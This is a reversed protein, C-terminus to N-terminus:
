RAYSAYVCFDYLAQATEARTLPEISSLGSDYSFGLLRAYRQLILNMHEGTVYDETGFLGNGYGQVIGNEQAWGVYGSYWTGLEVDIFYSNDVQEAGAMRGLVTITMARTLNQEPSFTTDSTGLMIGNKYLFEVAEYCSDDESVDTFVSTRSSGSYYSEAYELAAGADLMGGCKVKGNLTDLPTATEMLIDKVDSVTLDSNSSYLMAAVASLIPASMSTGTMFSYSDDPTLSLIYSGPVAIDVNNEGYNSSYHLSGDSQLNAVSIINDLDFSAPYCVTRDISVGDNGSSAIFLMESDAVAQYLARDYRTTGMSMNCITAGNAEAYQIAEIVSETSGSGDRGGLAKLVMVKVSGDSVIGAIGTDNDTSAVMSGAGHTGHSDESGKYVINNGNYFNWGYVDDAYGNGDDDMGNGAIEDENVWFVDESFDEHGTDVGTDILAIVTERSGGDYLNWVKEMNIDIGSVSTITNSSQGYMAFRGMWGGPTGGPMGSGTGPRTWQGPQSPQEFPRDYVPFENKEEVMKFSGDNSLAWQKEYYEDNVSYGSSEYSFNPQVFSVDESNKLRKLSSELESESSCSIKEIHGDGYVVIAENDTFSSISYGWFGNDCSENAMVPLSSALMAAIVTMCGLQKIYRRKM